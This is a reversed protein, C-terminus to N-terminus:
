ASVDSRGSRGEPYVGVEACEGPRRIWRSGQRRGQHRAMRGTIPVFLMLGTWLAAKSGSESSTRLNTTPLLSSITSLSM